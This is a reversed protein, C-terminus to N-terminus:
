WCNSDSQNRGCDKPFRSGRWVLVPFVFLFWRPRVRGWRLERGRTSRPAPAPLVDGARPSGGTAYEELKPLAAVPATLQELAELSTAAAVTMRKAGTRSKRMGALSQGGELQESEGESTEGARFQVITKKREEAGLLELAGVAGVNALKSRRATGKLRHAFRASAGINPVKYM